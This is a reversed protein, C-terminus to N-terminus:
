QFIVCLDFVQKCIPKNQKRMYIVFDYVSLMVFRNTDGLLPVPQNISFRSHREFVPGLVKFFDDSSDISDPISEDFKPDISDFARRKEESLGLQEYAKQICAFVSENRYENTQSAKGKDPHYILM